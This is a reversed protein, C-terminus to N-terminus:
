LYQKIRNVASLVVREDIGNHKSVDEISHLDVVHSTVASRCLFGLKFMESLEGIRDILVKDSKTRFIARMVVGRM